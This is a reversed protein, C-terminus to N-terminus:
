EEVCPLAGASVIGQVADPLIKVGNNEEEMEKQM